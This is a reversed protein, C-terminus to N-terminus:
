RRSPTSPCTSTSAVHHLIKLDGRWGLVLVVVEGPALLLDEPLDDFAAEALFDGPVKADAHLGHAGAKVVDGGLEM